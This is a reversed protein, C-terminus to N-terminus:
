PCVRLNPREGGDSRRGLSGEGAATRATVLYAFGRGEAAGPIDTDTFAPVALDNQFCTGYNVSTLWVLPHRYVRYGTAGTERRAIWGARTAPRVLEVEGDGPDCADGLGNADRDRQNRNRAHPCNDAGNAVTDGDLDPDAADALGDNDDDPDCVDGLGDQDNNEQRPDAASPCADCVDGVGDGDLDAQAPDQRFPCVDTRDPVADADEDHFPLVTPTLTLNSVV